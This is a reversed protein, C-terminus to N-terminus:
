MEYGAWFVNLVCGSQGLVPWVHWQDGPDPRLATTLSLDDIPDEPSTLFWVRAKEGSFDSPVQQLFATCVVDSERDRNIVRLHTLAVGEPIELTDTPSIFGDGHRLVPAEASVEIRGDNLPLNGVEVTGGVQTTGQPAVPVPDTTDNRVIVGKFNDAATAIQPGFGAGLTLCATALAASRLRTSRRRRVTVDSQPAHANM